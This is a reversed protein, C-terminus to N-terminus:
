YKIVIEIGSFGFHEYIMKNFPTSLMKYATDINQFQIKSIQYHSPPSRDPHFVKSLDRYTEKVDKLTSNSNLGLVLYPDM